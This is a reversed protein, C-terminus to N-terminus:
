LITVKILIEFRRKGINRKKLRKWKDSNIKQSKDMCVALITKEHSIMWLEELM